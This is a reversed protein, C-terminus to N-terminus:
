YLWWCVVCTHFEWLIVMNTQM